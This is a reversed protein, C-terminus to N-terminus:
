SILFFLFGCSLESRCLYQLSLKFGQIYHLGMHLVYEESTGAFCCIGKFDKKEEKKQFIYYHYLSM